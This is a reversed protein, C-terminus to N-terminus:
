GVELEDVYLQLSCLDSDKLETASKHNFLSIQSEAM